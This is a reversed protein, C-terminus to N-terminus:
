KQFDHAFIIPPSDNKPVIRSVTPWKGSQRPRRWERDHHYVWPWSTITTNIFSKPKIWSGIMTIDINRAFELNRSSQLPLAKRSLLQQHINHVRPLLPRIHSGHGGHCHPVSLHPRNYCLGFTETVCTSPCGAMWGLMKSHYPPLHIHCSLLQYWGFVTVGM